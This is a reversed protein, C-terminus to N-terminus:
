SNAKDGSGVGRAKVVQLLGMVVGFMHSHRRLAIAVGVWTRGILQHVVHTLLGLSGLVAM